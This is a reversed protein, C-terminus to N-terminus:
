FGGHEDSETPDNIPHKHCVFNQCKWCKRHCIGTKDRVVLDFKTSTLNAEGM